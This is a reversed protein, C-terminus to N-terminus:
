VIIRISGEEPVFTVESKEKLKYREVLEKPIRVGLSVGWRSLKAINRKRERYIEAAEHLQKMDLFSDKCKKCYYHNYPVGDKFKSTREEMPIKCKNCIRM